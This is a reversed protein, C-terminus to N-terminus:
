LVFAESMTRFHPYIYKFLSVNNRTIPKDVTMTKFFRNMSKMLKEQYHPVGAEIHLTDLSM